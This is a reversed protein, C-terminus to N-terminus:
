PSTSQRDLEEHSRIYEEAEDKAHLAEKLTEALYDGVTVGAAAVSESIEAELGQRIFELAAQSPSLGGRLAYAHLATELESSLGSVLINAM